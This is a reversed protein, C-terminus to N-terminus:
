FCYGCGGWTRTHLCAIVSGRDCLGCLPQVALEECSSPSTIAEMAEIQCASPHETGAPFGPGLTFHFLCKTEDAADLEGCELFRDCIRRAAEDYCPTSDSCIPVTDESDCSVSAAVLLLASVIGGVRSVRPFIM